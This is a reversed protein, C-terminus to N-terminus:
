AIGTPLTTVSSESLRVPLDAIGCGVGSHQGLEEPSIDVWPAESLEETAREADREGVGMQGVGAEGRDLAHDLHDGFKGLVPSAVPRSRM